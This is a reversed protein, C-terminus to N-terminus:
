EVKKACYTEEGQKRRHVQGEGPSLTGFPWLRQIRGGGCVLIQSGRIQGRFIAARHFRHNAVIDQAIRFDDRFGDVDQLLAIRLASQGINAAVDLGRKRTRDCAIGIPLPNQYLKEIISATEAAGAHRIEVPQDGAVSIQFDHEAFQGNQALAALLRRAHRESGRPLALVLREVVGHVGSAFRGLGGDCLCGGCGAEIHRRRPM